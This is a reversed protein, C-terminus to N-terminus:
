KAFKICYFGDYGIKANSIGGSLQGQLSPINEESILQILNEVCSESGSPAQIAIAASQVKRSERNM